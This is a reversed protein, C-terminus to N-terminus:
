LLLDVHHASSGSFTLWLSNVLTALILAFSSNIIIESGAMASVIAFSIFSGGLIIISKRRVNLKLLLNIDIRCALVPAPVVYSPYGTNM